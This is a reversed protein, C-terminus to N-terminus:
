LIIFGEAIILPSTTNLQKRLEIEKHDFNDLAKYLSKKKKM